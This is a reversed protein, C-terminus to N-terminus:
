IAGIQRQAVRAGGNTGQNRSSRNTNFPIWGLIFGSYYSLATTVYQKLVVSTFKQNKGTKPGFPAM